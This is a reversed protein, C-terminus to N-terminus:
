EYGDSNHLQEFDSAYLEDCDVCTADKDVAISYRSCQKESTSSDFYGCQSCLVRAM